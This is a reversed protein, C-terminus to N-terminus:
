HGAQERRYRLVRYARLGILLLAAILGITGLTRAIWVLWTPYHLGFMGSVSGVIATPFFTWAFNRYVLEERPTRDAWLM